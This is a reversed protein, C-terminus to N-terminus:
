EYRLAHVPGARALHLTHAFVTAWAIVLAVASGGLFYLPSLSIRYAYGELWRSLYQYAVPWAILNAVLVPMSIRWLMLTLIDYTRAGAIKRIGIEKTRREATFVTLGFLGLCAIFIAIGVFLVLLQGQKEDPQFLRDFEDALYYRDIAAGPAFSRWTRDIFSLTEAARDGRIRISLERMEHPDATDLYYLTPYVPDRVGELKTDGLIGVITARFPSAGITLQSGIADLPTLGLRRAGTANILVDHMEGHASLDEGKKESLLRGALLKMSYLVQFGPAADIEQFPVSEPGMSTRIENHNVNDLNLPVAKSYAVGVIQPDARLAAAFSERQSPTLRSIGRVVVVGDRDFGLDVNRAYDIQKFVVLATIGLGISIAFQAVVLVSRLFGPSGYSSGGDPRLALAPRFRSLVVAPYLGSLLGVVIAGAVLMALLHWDALYHLTIPKGLFRDYLPLLVEVLSLAIALSAVSFLVAEVLFQAVLEGRKAGGVKRVAIERARLTARATALNTFNGCAILIILLAVAGLGYVTAWSGAPTMGSYQDSTLHADRFATLRYQELESASLNVGFKRPDFSRDLIPKLAALVDAPDAGPALDVYGYDQDGSTWGHAKESPTMGDARSTSPVVVEAVLQTNHPLDRLVGTVILPYVASLCASDNAGCASSGDQALSLTKGIPDIPGFFKRAASESLVVSEPQGLVRAPDGRVLPLKIVQFFNPDVFTVQEPFQRDGINVTMPQPQVHTVAKVQPIPGQIASVVPFPAMALPMPARGPLHFTVELRYLNGSGPIWKDYSLEDRVYLTILIAATLGISLGAINIVSYLKHHALSRAATVLYHRLM